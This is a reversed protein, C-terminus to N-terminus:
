REKDQECMRPNTCACPIPVTVTEACLTSGVSGSSPHRFAWIFLIREFMAHTEDNHFEPMETNTRKIDIQM